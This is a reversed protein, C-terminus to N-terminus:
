VDRAIRVTMFPWPDSTNTATFELEVTKNAPLVLSVAPNTYVSASLSADNVRVLVHGLETFDGFPNRMTLLTLTVNTYTAPLVANYLLAEPVQVFYLPDFTTSPTTESPGLTLRPPASFLRLPTNPTTLQPRLYLTRSDATSVRPHWLRYLIIALPLVLVLSQRLKVGM